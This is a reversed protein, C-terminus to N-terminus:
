QTLIKKTSMHYWISVYIKATNRMKHEKNLHIKM